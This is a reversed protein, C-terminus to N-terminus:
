TLIRDVLSKGKLLDSLSIQKHKKLPHPDFDELMHWVLSDMKETFKLTKLKEDTLIKNFLSYVCLCIRYYM